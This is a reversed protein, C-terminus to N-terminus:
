GGELSQLQRGELVHVGPTLKLTEQALARAVRAAEVPRYKEAPGVFAFRLPRLLSQGVGELFRREERKGLLLSPRAIVLREFGVARLADEMQGKVRNYFIRSGADADVASVVGFGRAGARRSARAFRVVLELDVERFAERSGAAKLTTGLACFAVDAPLDCEELAEWSRYVWGAREVVRRGFLVGGPFNRLLESGVLGTAGALWVNM